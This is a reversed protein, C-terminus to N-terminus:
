VFMQQLLGKKYQETSAIQQNLLSIKDDIASLFDAIQRQEDLHPFLCKLTKLDNLSLVKQSTGVSLVSLKNKYYFNLYEIMFINCINKFNFVPYYTSILGKTEFKNVNFTFLGDDSRSRYTVYGIPIVNYIVNERETIRNSGGYYDTQKMLGKRSSTLVPLNDEATKEKYEILYDGLKKEEWDPYASGDPRTFRLEQSFIRQMVGRKYEELKTKKDKLLQLRKDVASLFDAIKQQEPFSPFPIHFSKLQSGTILPQGSGFTLKGLNSSILKQYTFDLSIEAKMDIILTNDTVSFQNSVLNISGANAGVRAVLLYQGNHTAVNSFGIIGMSGYVPYDGEGNAKTKGSSISNCVEGLKKEEWEGSFEPFRLAPIKVDTNKMTKEESM